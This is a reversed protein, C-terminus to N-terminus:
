ILIAPLIDFGLLYVVGLGISMLSVVVALTAYIPFSREAHLLGAGALGAIVGNALILGVVWTALLLLGFNVGVAATSAVFIAIQTPSEVGVGHLMGIGAATGHGYRATANEPLVLEHRHPHNHGRSLRQRTSRWGTATSVTQPVRRPVEAPSTVHAHDHAHQADHDDDIAVHEHGHDHEVAITRGTAANRVKRMGAFTGDIMLMWRSRLRFNRGKRALELLIWGGLAILTVGVVKGMWEDLGDPIALGFAIAITGLAFVVLGHGLAYIMSLLFGRRRSEATGSLDAIAAIHDWDFGHRLGLTFATLLLGLSVGDDVRRCLPHVVGAALNRLHCPGRGIERQGATRGTHIVIDRHHCGESVVRHFSSREDQTEVTCPRRARYSVGGADHRHAAFGGLCEHGTQRKSVVGHATIQSAPGTPETGGLPHWGFDSAHFTNLGRVRALRKDIEGEDAVLHQGSQVVVHPNGLCPEDTMAEAAQEAKSREEGLRCKEVLVQKGARRDPPVVPHHEVEFCVICSGVIIQSGAHEEGRAFCFVQEFTEVHTAIDNLHGLSQLATPVGAEVRGM